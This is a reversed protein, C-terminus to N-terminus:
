KPTTLFLSIKQVMFTIWNSNIKKQGSDLQKWATWVSEAKYFGNKDAKGKILEIIDAFRKDKVAYDFHSLVNAVHLIDYWIFPFKLKRFDSGIGFLYRKDKKDLHDLLAEVAMQCHRENQRDPLVTFLKAMLLNAYPCLTGRKGPGNFKGLDCSASCPYGYNQGLSILYELGKELRPREIGLKVLSYMLLPADCLMWSFQDKGTGGFHVPINIEVQFVGEPSEHEMIKETIEKLGEDNINFGLDAIFSLKHILLKADNHRKLIDGPWEKLEEIIGIVVPDNWADRRLQKNEESQIDQVLLDKTVLFKLIPSSEQIQNIINEM